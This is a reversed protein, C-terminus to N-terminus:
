NYDVSIGVYTATDLNQFYTSSTSRLNTVFQSYDMNDLVTQYEGLPACTDQVFTCTGTFGLVFQRSEVIMSHTYDSSARYAVYNTFANGMETGFVESLAFFVQAQEFSSLERTAASSFGLTIEGTQLILDECASPFSSPPSSPSISTSPSTAPRLSPISTPSTTTSPTSMTPSTTPSPTDCSGLLPLFSFFKM